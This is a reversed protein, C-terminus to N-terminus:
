EIQVPRISLGSRRSFDGMYRYYDSVFGDENFSLNKAKDPDASDLSRSWYYGGAGEDEYIAYHLIFSYSLQGAAPLFISNGNPGKVVYGNCGNCTVWIWECAERLEMIQDYSPMRWKSGLNMYAADDKYDLETKNDVKGYNVDTNYKRIKNKGQRWKYQKFSDRYLLAEKVEGWAYYDGYEEPTSAGLNRTAWLTGSPLGLDVYDGAKENIKEQIRAIQEKYTQEHLLSDKKVQESALSDNFVTEKSIIHSIGHYESGIISSDTKISPITEQAISTQKNLSGSILETKGEYVIVSIKQCDYGNACIEVDHTGVPIRRFVNPSVGAKQGDIWVEASMPQYNVNITGTIPQLAPITLQAKDNPSITVSLRQKYYGDMRGEVRYIGEPLSGIWSTTSKLEDNIYIQTGPTISKVSLSSMASSLKVTLPLTENDIVFTGSQTEYNPAVVRYNHKGKPLLKGLTGDILTQAKDDIFVTANSPEVTMALFNMGDDIDMGLLPMQLTLNYTVKIDIGLIGYDRFSVHLPLFSPHKIRLEYSGETMYVWYEGTKYEVPPIINGEFQAGYSALQVKVLGCTQGALDKREYTSASLDNDAVTMSKVTLEQAFLAQVTLLIFSILPFIRKKM